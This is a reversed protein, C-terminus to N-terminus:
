VMPFRGSLAVAVLVAGAAGATGVIAARGLVFAVRDGPGSGIARLADVEKPSERSARTVRQPGLEVPLSWGGIRSAVVGDPFAKGAGASASQASAFSCANDRLLQQQQERPLRLQILHFATQASYLLMPRVNMQNSCLCAYPHM